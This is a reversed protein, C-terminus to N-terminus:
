FHREFSDVLPQHRRFSRALAVEDGGVTGLVQRVDGFVSVDAGRFAYISQKQDGVVFLCGPQQPDALARVIDWQAQNTDQFEDVLVHKFEVNQYRQRVQPYNLLLNRTRQELDDFDLLGQTQKAVEYYVQTQHILRVWLPLLVAAQAELPGPPEGIMSAADQAKARILKLCDKAEALVEKSGWKAQAGVNVKINNGLARVADVCANTSEAPDFLTDFHPFCAQWVAFLKDDQPWGGPSTWAVAAQFDEDLRLRDIYGAATTTWEAQWHSFLDAPLQPLETSVFEQLVSEINYRDYEAFLALAPDGTEVVQQMTNEIVTDLLIGAEVEDMVVFGPDIGAEAANARLITACLGHITDIRASDMAALRGAWVGQEALTPARRLRDELAQRM